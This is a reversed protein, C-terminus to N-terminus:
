RALGVAVMGTGMDVILSGRVPGDVVLERRRLKEHLTDDVDARLRYSVRCSIKSNKPTVHNQVM